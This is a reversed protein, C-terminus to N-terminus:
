ACKEDLNIYNNYMNKLKCKYHINKDEDTLALPIFSKIM